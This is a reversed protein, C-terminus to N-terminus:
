SGGWGLGRAAPELIRVDDGLAARAARMRRELEKRGGLIAGLHIHDAWVVFSGPVCRLAQAVGVDAFAPDGSDLGFTALEHAASEVAVEIRHAIPGSWDYPSNRGSSAGEFPTGRILGLAESLSEPGRVEGATLACFRGWDTTVADTLVFHNGNRSLTQAPLSKRLDSLYNRFTAANPEKRGEVWISSRLEVTSFRRGPHLALFVLLERVPSKEFRQVEGEVGVEGLVKVVVTPRGQSENARDSDPPTRASLLLPPSDIVVRGEADARRYVRRRWIPILLVLIVAGAGSGAGIELPNIFGVARGVPTTHSRSVKSSAAKTRPAPASTPTTRVSPAKPPAPVVLVTRAPAFAITTLEGGAAPGNPYEIAGYSGSSVELTATRTFSPVLFYYTGLLLSGLPSM